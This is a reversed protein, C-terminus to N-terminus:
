GKRGRLGLRALLGSQPPGPVETLSAPTEMEVYGGVLGANIFGAVEGLQTGSQAAIEDVTAMGKMMATAIRFHRPFEREMQPWKTVRFRSGADIGGLLVGDGGFLANLWVLRALPQGGGAARLGELVASSVPEWASRPIAARCYPELAKLGTPGFYVGAENDITLAPAAAHVIRSPRPLADITCFEALSLETAIASSPEPAPGAAANVAPLQQGVRAVTGFLPTSATSAAPRPPKAPMPIVGAPTADFVDPSRVTPVLVPRQPLPIEIEEHPASGLEERYRALAALLRDASMPRTLFVEQDGGVRQAISVVRRGTVRAQLWDMQGYLSDVDIFLVDAETTDVWRVVDGTQPRVQEVLQHLREIDDAAVSTAAIRILRDM